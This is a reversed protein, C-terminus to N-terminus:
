ADRMRGYYRISSVPMWRRQVIETDFTFRLGHCEDLALAKVYGVEGNFTEVFHGLLDDEAAHLHHLVQAVSTEYVHTVRFPEDIRDFDPSM